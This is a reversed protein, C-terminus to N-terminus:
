LSFKTDESKWETHIKSLLLRCLNFTLGRLRSSLAQLDYVISWLRENQTARRAIPERAHEVQRAFRFSKRFRSWDGEGGARQAHSQYRSSIPVTALQSKHFLESVHM